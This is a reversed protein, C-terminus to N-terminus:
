AVALPAGKKLIWSAIDDPVPMVSLRSHRVLLFDSFESEAKISALTVPSMTHTLKLEVAWSFRPDKKNEFPAAVVEALGVIAKDSMSLYIFVQDGPQMTKIVAIAQHNHVGDWITQKDRKFDELSYTDPDTKALFYAM